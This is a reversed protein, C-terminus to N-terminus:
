TRQVTYAGLSNLSLIVDITGPNVEMTIECGDAIDFKKLGSFLKSLHEPSILSPTGGGIYITDVMYGSLEKEYVGLEVLLADVYLARMPDNSVISYFDCYRCRKKCFPIHVYIGLTKM